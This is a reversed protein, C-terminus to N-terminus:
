STRAHRSGAEAQANGFRRGRLVEAFLRSQQEPSGQQRLQNVYVFHSHPIQGINPDAASILRFVEAVTPVSVEAGGLTAPVTIALLGSASLRDLEAAPLVRGADRRAADVAFDAALEAAVAVAEEDRLVPVTSTRVLQSM